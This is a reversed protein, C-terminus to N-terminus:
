RGAASSMITITARNESLNRDLSSRRLPLSHACGASGACLLGVPSGADARDTRRLRGCGSVDWPRSHRRLDPAANPHFPSQSGLKRQTRGAALRWISQGKGLFVAYACDPRSTSNETNEPCRKPISRVKMLDTGQEPPLYLRRSCSLRGEGSGGRWLVGCPATKKQLLFLAQACRPYHTGKEAQQRAGEFHATPM